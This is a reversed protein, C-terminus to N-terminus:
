LTAVAVDDPSNSPVEQDCQPSPSRAAQSEVGATEHYNALHALSEVLLLDARRTCHRSGRNGLARLLQAVSDLHLQVYQRISVGAGILLQAWQWVEASLNGAGMMVYLRLLQAYQEDLEPPIESQLGSDPGQGMVQLERLIDQQASWHRASEDRERHLWRRRHLSLRYNDRELEGRQLARWVMRVLAACTQVEAAWVDGELRFCQRALNEDLARAIIVVPAAVGTSRLAELLARADQAKACHHLLVLDYTEEQLRRLGDLPGTAQDFHVTVAGASVEALANTLDGRLESGGAASSSSDAYPAVVELLRVRRLRSPDVRDTGDYENPKAVTM